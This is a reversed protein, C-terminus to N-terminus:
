AVFGRYALTAIPETQKVRPLRWGILAAEVAIGV